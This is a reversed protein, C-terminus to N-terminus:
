NERDPKFGKIITDWDALSADWASVPVEWRLAFGRNSATAVGRNRVHLRVGDKRTEFWDWDACTRYWDCPEIDIYKYDIVYNKRASEKSKWDAVADDKPHPTWQIFM